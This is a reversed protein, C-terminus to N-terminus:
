MEYELDSEMIDYVDERKFSYDCEPCTETEDSVIAGCIPCEKAM